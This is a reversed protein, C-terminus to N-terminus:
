PVAQNTGVYFVRWKYGLRRALLLTGGNGCMEGCWYAVNIAAVTSDQNFGPRSLLARPTDPSPGALEQALAVEATETRLDVALQAGMRVLLLSDLSMRRGAKANLDALAAHVARKLSDPWHAPAHVNLAPPLSIGQLLVLASPRTGVRQFQDDLAAVYVAAEPSDSGPAPETSYRVVANWSAKCGTVVLASTLLGVYWYRV